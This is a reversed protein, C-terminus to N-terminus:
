LDLAELFHTKRREARATDSHRNDSKLAVSVEAKQAEELLNIISQISDKRIVSQDKTQQYSLPTSDKDRSDRTNDHSSTQRKQSAAKVRAVERCSQWRLREAKNKLMNTLVSSSSSNKNPAVCNPPINLTAFLGAIQAVNSCDRISGVNTLQESERITSTDSDSDDSDSDDSDSDSNTNQARDTKREADDAQTPTRIYVLPRRTDTHVHVNPGMSCFNRCGGKVIKITDPDITSGDNGNNQGDDGSEKRQFMYENVLEEMELLV